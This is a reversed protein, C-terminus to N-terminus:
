SWGNGLYKPEETTCKTGVHHPIDEDLAGEEEELADGRINKRPIFLRSLATGKCWNAWVTGKQMVWATICAVM